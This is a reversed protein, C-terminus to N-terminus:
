KKDEKEEEEQEKQKLGLLKGPPSDAFFEELVWALTATPLIDTFPLAEEIFGLSAIANSRFLQNLLFAELPAYAADSLEGLGPFLFSSDGLGDIVLCVVLKGWVEPGLSQLKKETYESVQKSAKAMAKREAEQRIKKVEGAVWFYAVTSVVPFWLPLNGDADKAAEAFPNTLGFMSLEFVPLPSPPSMSGISVADVLEMPVARHPQHRSKSKGGFFRHQQHSSPSVSVVGADHVRGARTSGTSVRAVRAAIVVSHMTAMTMRLNTDLGVRLVQIERNVRQRLRCSIM